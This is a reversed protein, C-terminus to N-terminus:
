SLRYRAAAIKKLNPVNRGTGNFWVYLNASPVRLRASLQGVTAGKKGARRLESLIKRKLAGRKARHSPARRAPAVSTSVSPEMSPIGFQQQVRNIQRDISQIEALHAEKRESLKVLQKLVNSPISRLM